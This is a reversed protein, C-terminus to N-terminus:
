QEFYDLDIKKIQYIEIPTVGVNYEIMLNTLTEGDILIVKPEISKVYEIAPKAFTSTTM